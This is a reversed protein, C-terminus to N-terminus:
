EFHLLLWYEFCPNSIALGYNKRKTMWQHLPQFETENRNDVDVVIWIEDDKKPREDSIFKGVHKLVQRPQPKNKRYKISVHINNSFFNGIMTFYRPETERGETFIYFIKRYDRTARARRFKRVLKAM